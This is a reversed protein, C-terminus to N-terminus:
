YRFGVTLGYTAPSGAYRGITDIVLVPATWYYTNTVNRGFATVSWRGDKTQVGARLDLTTYGNIKAVELEGLGGYSSSTHQIAFGLNADWNSSLGFEYNGRVNFTLKPSFPLVDGKMQVRNAVFDFNLFNSTIKTKIYTADANLTFGRFPNATVQVEAGYIQSKPVNVLASAQQQTNPDIVRGRVQKNTYDDYFGATNFQLKGNLLTLKAGAEYAVVDEQKAPVLSLYSSAGVLPFAGAKAM